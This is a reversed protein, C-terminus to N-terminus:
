ANAWFAAMKEKIDEAHAFQWGKNWAEFIAASPAFDIGQSVTETPILELCKKCNSATQIGSSFAAKGLEYAACITRENNKRFTAKAIEMEKIAKREISRVTM